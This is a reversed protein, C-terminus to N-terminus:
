LVDCRVAGCRMTDCRWLIRCRCARMGTAVSRRVSAVLIRGGPSVKIRKELASIRKLTLSAAGTPVTTVAIAEAAVSPAAAAGPVTTVAIAAGAASTLSAAGTPATAVAIAGAAANPAAATGAASPAAAARPVAAVAAVGTTGNKAATIASFPVSTASSSAASHQEVKRTSNTRLISTAGKWPLLDSNEGQEMASTNKPPADKRAAISATTPGNNADEGHDGIDAINAVADESVSKRVQAAVEKAATSKTPGGIKEFRKECEELRRLVEADTNSVLLGDEGGMYPTAESSDFVGNKSKDVISERGQAALRRASSHQRLSGGGDNQEQEDENEIAASLRRQLQVSMRRNRNRSEIDVPTQPQQQAGAMIVQESQMKEQRKAEHMFMNALHLERKQDSIAKTVDNSYSSCAALLRKAIDDFSVRVIEIHQKAREKLDRHFLRAELLSHRVRIIAGTQIPTVTHAVRRLWSTKSHVLRLTDNNISVSPEHADRAAAVVPKGSKAKELAARMSTRRASPSSRGVTSTSTAPASESDVAAPARVCITTGAHKSIEARVDRRLISMQRKYKKIQEVEVQEAMRLTTQAKTKKKKDKTSSMVRRLTAEAKLVKEQLQPIKREFTECTSQAKTVLPHILSVLQKSEHIALQMEPELVQGGLHDHLHEQLKKAENRKQVLTQALEKVMRKCDGRTSIWLEQVGERGRFFDTRQKDAAIRHKASQLTKMAGAKSLDKQFARMTRVSDQSAKVTTSLINHQDALSKYCSAQLGRFAERTKRVTRAIRKVARQVPTEGKFKKNSGSLKHTLM